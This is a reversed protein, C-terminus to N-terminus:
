FLTERDNSSKRLRSVIGVLDDLSGEFGDMLTMTLEWSSVDDGFERELRDALYRAGAAETACETFFDMGLNGVLEDSWAHERMQGFYSSIARAIGERSSPTNQYSYYGTYAFARGPEGFLETVQGPEPSVPSRGSLWDCTKSLDSHRLLDVMIEPSLAIAEQELLTSGFTVFGSFGPSSATQDSLSRVFRSLLDKDLRNSDCLLARYVEADKIEILKELIERDTAVTAVLVRLWGVESDVLIRQADLDVKYAGSGYHWGWRGSHECLLRALEGNIQSTNRVAETVLSDARSTWSYSEDRDLEVLDTLSIGCIPGKGLFKALNLELNRNHFGAAAIFLPKNNILRQTLNIWPFDVFTADALMEKDILWELDVRDVLSKAIESDSHKISWKFLYRATEEDCHTNAAVARRVGVRSDRSLKKLVSARTEARALSVAMAAGKKKVGSLVSAESLENAIPTNVGTSAVKFVLEAVQDSVLKTGLMMAAMRSVLGNSM